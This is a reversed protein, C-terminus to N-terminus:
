NWAQSSALSVAGTTPRVGTEISIRPGPSKSAASAFSAASFGSAANMLQRHHRKSRRDEGERNLAPHRNYGCAAGEGIRANKQSIARTGGFPEPSRCAIDVLHELARLGGVQGDLLRCFEFKPV